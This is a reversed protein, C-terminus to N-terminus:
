PNQLLLPSMKWPELRGVEEIPKELLRNLLGGAGRQTAIPYGFRCKGHNLPPPIEITGFGPTIRRKSIKPLCTDRTALWTANPSAWASARSKGSSFSGFRRKEHNLAVNEMTFGRSTACACIIATRHRTNVPVPLKNEASGFRRKEHVRAQRYNFAVNRM